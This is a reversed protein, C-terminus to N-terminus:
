YNKYYIFLYIFLKLPATREIIRRGTQRFLRSQMVPMQCKTQFRANLKHGTYTIRTNFNNPVIRKTCRKTNSKAGVFRNNLPLRM